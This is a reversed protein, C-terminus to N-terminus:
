RIACLKVCICLCAVLFGPGQQRKRPLIGSVKINLLQHRITFLFQKDKTPFLYTFPICKFGYKNMM